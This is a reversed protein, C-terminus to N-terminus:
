EPLQESRYYPNTGLLEDDWQERLDNITSASEIDQADTADRLTQKQESVATVDEPSGNELAKIFEVDLEELRPKRARRINNRHVEKAKTINFKYPM